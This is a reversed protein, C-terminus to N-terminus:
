VLGAVHAADHQAEERPRLEAFGDDTGYYIQHIQEFAGVNSRPPVPKM